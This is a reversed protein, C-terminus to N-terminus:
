SYKKRLTCFVNNRKNVGKQTSIMVNKVDEKSNLYIFELSVQQNNIKWIRHLANGIGFSSLM